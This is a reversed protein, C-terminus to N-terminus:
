MVIQYLFMQHVIRASNSMTDGKPNKYRESECVLVVIVSAM